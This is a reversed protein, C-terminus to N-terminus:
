LIKSYIVIGYALRSKFSMLSKKYEGDSTKITRITEQYVRKLSITGFAIHPSLRSCSTEATIPSMQSRYFEGRNSLFSSLNNQAFKAGGKQINDTCIEDMKINEVRYKYDKIFKCNCATYDTYKKVHIKEVRIVLLDIGTQFNSVLNILNKWHINKIDLYHRM